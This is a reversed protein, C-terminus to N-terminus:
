YVRCNNVIEIQFIFLFFTDPQTFTDPGFDHDNGNDLLFTSPDNTTNLCLAKWDREVYEKLMNVHCVRQTRRGNPTAIIYDVPGRKGIVRFPGQYKALLPKGPIPLM